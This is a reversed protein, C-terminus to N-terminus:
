DVCNHKELTRIIKSLHNKDAHPKATKVLEILKDPSIDDYRENIMIITAALELWNKTKDKVLEIFQETVKRPRVNGFNEISYYDDALSTSYPGHIYLSYNYNTQFGLKQAIFVYKQLKIRHSFSNKNFDIVDRDKLSKLFGVLKTKDKLSNGKM